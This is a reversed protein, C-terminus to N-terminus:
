GGQVATVIEVESGAALLHDRWLGRAVLEGDVAVAIGLPGDTGPDVDTLDRVLDACTAGGPLHHPAGNVTVSFESEHVTM